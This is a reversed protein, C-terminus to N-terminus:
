AGEWANLDVGADYELGTVAHFIELGLEVAIALELKAGPSNKWGPIMAIAEVKLLTEVAKKLYVSRPLDQRGGFHESPDLVGWDWARWQAALARFRPYNYDPLGTMEGALYIRRM